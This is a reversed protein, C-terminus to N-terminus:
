GNNDLVMYCMLRVIFMEFLCQISMQKPQLWGHRTTALKKHIEYAQNSVQM